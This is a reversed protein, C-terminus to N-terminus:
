KRKILNDKTLIANNMVLWLFIKIKSPIKGKWIKKHHPRAEKSTMAKYTSKVNFLGSCNFRWTVVDTQDTLQIANV